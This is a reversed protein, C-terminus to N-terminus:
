SMVWGETPSYTVSFSGSIRAVLLWMQLLLITLSLVYAFVKPFMKSKNRIFIQKKNNKIQHKTKTIIGKQKTLLIQSSLRPLTEEKSNSKILCSHDTKCIPCYWHRSNSALTRQTSIPTLIAGIERPYTTMHGRLAMVLTRLNWNPDWTEQHYATASLCIPKNLEWRGNPTMISISPAKRPYEPHLFIRGHYIGDEFASGNVGTFSFHWELLSSKVPLLRIGCEDMSTNFPNDMSIKHKKIDQFERVLRKRTLTKDLNVSNSSVGKQFILVLMSIM